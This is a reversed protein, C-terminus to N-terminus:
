SFSSSFKSDVQLVSKLYGATESFFPKLLKQRGPDYCFRTEWLYHM